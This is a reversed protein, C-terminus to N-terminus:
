EFSIICRLIIYTLVIFCLDSKIALQIIYRLM